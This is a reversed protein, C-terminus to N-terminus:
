KITVNDNFGYIFVFDNEILTKKIYDVDAIDKELTIKKNILKVSRSNVNIPLLRLLHELKLTLKNLHYLLLQKDKENLM